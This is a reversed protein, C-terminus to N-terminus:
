VVETDRVSDEDDTLHTKLKCKLIYILNIDFVIHFRFRGKEYRGINMNYTRGRPTSGRIAPYLGPAVYRM